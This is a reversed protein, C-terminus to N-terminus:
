REIAPCGPPIGDRWQQLIKRTADFALPPLSQPPFFAAADADDHAQLVGSEVQGKYIIVISAGRPHEKGYLVDILGCIQVKLGTEELCERKAAYRPDENGDVFGAPLTWKGREPANRRRTLLVRGEQEVLVAAAVKPDTFFFRDCESCFPRERGDFLRQKTPSGCLPCHRYVEPIAM